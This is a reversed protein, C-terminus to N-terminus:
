QVRSRSSRGAGALSSGEDDRGDNFVVVRINGAALRQHAVGSMIANFLSGMPGAIDGPFKDPMLQWDVWEIAPRLKKILPMLHQHTRLVFHCIFILPLAQREVVDFYAAQPEEGFRMRTFPGFKLYPKENKTIRKVLGRLGLQEILETKSDIITGARASIARILVGRGPVIKSLAPGFTGNQRYVPNRSWKSLRGDKLGLHLAVDRAAQFHEGGESLLLVTTHWNDTEGLQETPSHDMSGLFMTIQNTVLNQERRHWQFEGAGGATNCASRGLRQRHAALRQRNRKRHSRRRTRM